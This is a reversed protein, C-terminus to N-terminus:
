PALDNTVVWQVIREAKKHRAEYHIPTNLVKSVVDLAKM